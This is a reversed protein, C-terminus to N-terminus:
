WGYGYCSQPHPIEIRTSEDDDLRSVAKNTDELGLARCVDVAVLFPEGEIEFARITGFEPNEFVKMENM